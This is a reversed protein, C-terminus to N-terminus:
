DDRWELAKKQLQLSTYQEKHDRLVGAWDQRLTGASKRGRKELLFEVFDRVEQQSAPPLQKVLEEISKSEEAM